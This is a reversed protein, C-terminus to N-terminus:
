IMVEAARLRAVVREVGNPDVARVARATLTLRVRERESPLWYRHNRLDPSWRRCTRQRSRSVANGFGPGTGTVVCRRSM